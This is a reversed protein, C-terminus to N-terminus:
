FGCIEKDVEQQRLDDLLNNIAKEPNAYYHRSPIRHVFWGYREIIDQRQYDEERLEGEEYHFEGDCEVAMRRGERDFVVFDIFFGACPVQAYIELQSKALEDFVAREFGSQCKERENPTGFRSYPSKQEVVAHCLFDKILGNPFKDIPM